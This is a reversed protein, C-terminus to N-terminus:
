GRGKGHGHGNGHGHGHGHGHHHHHHHGHCKHTCVPPVTSTVTISQQVQTAPAYTTDGAQNADLTCTGAGTFSVVGGTISCVSASATDVTIAVVLGSSATATPTYTTGGVTASTPATSTFTVTQPTLTAAAITTSTLVPPAAYPVFPTTTVPLTGTYLASPYGVVQATIATGFLTVNAATDFEFQSWNVITGAAGSATLTVTLSPLTLTAGAPIQTSGTTVELYPFTPNPGAFGSYVGANVALTSTSAATCGAQGAATCETITEAFDTAAGGAAPVYSADGGAIASVYTTGAPIEYYEANNSIYNVPVGSNTTPVLQSGGANTVTFNSGPAATAPSYATAQTNVQAFGTPGPFGFYQQTLVGPAPTASGPTAAVLGAAGLGAVGILAAAGIAGLRAVKGRFTRM